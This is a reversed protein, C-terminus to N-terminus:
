RYNLLERLIMPIIQSTKGIFFVVLGRNILLAFWGFGFCRQQPKLLYILSYYLIISKM